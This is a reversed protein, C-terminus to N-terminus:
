RGSTFQSVNKHEEPKEGVKEWYSMAAKVYEDLADGTYGRRIGENRFNKEINEITEPHM